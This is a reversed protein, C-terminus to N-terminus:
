PKQWITTQTMVNSSQHVLRWDNPVGWDALPMWNSNDVLLLGGRAIKPLAALICAQRYHGDVVVFDLAGDPWNAAVAVYKPTEDYAPRSPEELPHDLPMYLYDINKTGSRAISAQVKDFWAKDHEVSTLHRLHRAFWATSRGSGWELGVHKEPDLNQECYRVAKQSIWPEDPHRLEYLRYWSRRVLYVPRILNRLKM